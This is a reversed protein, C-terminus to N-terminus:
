TVLGGEGASVVGCGSINRPMMQVCRSRLASVQVHECKLKRRCRGGVSIVLFEVWDRGVSGFHPELKPSLRNQLQLARIIQGKPGQESVKFPALFSFMKKREENNWNTQQDIEKSVVRWNNLEILSQNIQKQLLEKAIKLHNGSTPAKISTQNETMGGACPLVWSDKVTFLHRFIIDTSNSTLPASHALGAAVALVLGAGLLIMPACPHRNLPSNTLKM